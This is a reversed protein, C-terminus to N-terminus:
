SMKVTAGYSAKLADDRGHANTTGDILKSASYLDHKEMLFGWVAPLTSFQPALKDRVTSASKTEHVRRAELAEGSLGVDKSAFYFLEYQGGIGFIWDFIAKSRDM